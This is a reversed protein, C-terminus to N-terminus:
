KKLWNLWLPRIEKRMIIGKRYGIGREDFVVGLVDTLATQVEKDPAVFINYGEVVDIVSIFFRQVMPHTERLHTLCMILEDYRAEVLEKANVIELQGIGIHQGGVERFSFDGVLTDQLAGGELSSKARFMVAIFDDPVPYLSRLWAAAQHDRETTVNAKFNVTNSAIAGYLLHAADRSPTLGARQFREVVLTAASGVLEIQLKAKPFKDGEHLQRHDIIEVVRDIPLRPDQDTVTSTDVLIIETFDRPDVEIPLSIHFREAVHQAEAHPTGMIGAMAEHGQLRLLEAYGVICATGDLDPNPYSTILLPSM